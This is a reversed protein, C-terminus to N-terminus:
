RRPPFTVALYVIKSIQARTALANPLFYPRGSPECPDAVPPDLQTPDVENCAYGGLINHSAATEIHRYFVYERPVDQFRPTPPDELQWNAPDKQIAANVVIKAIQGRSVNHEPRFCPINATTECNNTDNYGDLIDRNYLTEIYQYFTHTTPVDKFHPGGQTNIPFQFALTVIKAVQGRTTNDYPRFCPIGTDGCPPITNYGSVVGRCFLYEVYGYFWDEITADTFNM